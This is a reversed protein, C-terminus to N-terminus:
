SIDDESPCRQRLHIRVMSARTLGRREVDQAKTLEYCPRAKGQADNYSALGFKSQSFKEWAPEMNRIDRMVHAHDRGTLKAIELSSMTQQSESFQILGREM